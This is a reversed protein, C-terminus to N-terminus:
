ANDKKAVVEAEEEKGPFIFSAVVGLALTGMVIALSSSPSTHVGTDFSAHTWSQFASNIGIFFLM